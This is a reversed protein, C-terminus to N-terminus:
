SKKPKDLDDLGFGLDKFIQNRLYISGVFLLAGMEAGVKFAGNKLNDIVEPFNKPLEAMVQEIAEEADYANKPNKDKVLILLKAKNKDIVEKIGSSNLIGNGKDNLQRPSSAPALKDKWLTEVRDEVKIFRERTDKLDPVINNDLTTKIGKVLTRLTGWAIGMSGIFVIMGIIASVTGIEIKQPFQNLIEKTPQVVQSAQPQISTEGSKIIDNEM